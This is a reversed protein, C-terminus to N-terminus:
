TVLDAASQCLRLDIQRQRVSWKESIFKIIDKVTKNQSAHQIPHTGHRHEPDTHTGTPVM